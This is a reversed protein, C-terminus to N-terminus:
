AACDPAAPDSHQGADGMVEVLPRIPWVTLASGPTCNIVEVGRATLADALAPFHPLFRAKYIGDWSPTPHEHHWHRRGNVARMDFGLLLIRRAGRKAAIQIAQYGGNGGTMVGDPRDSWGAKGDNRLTRLHPLDAILSTNELTWVEGGFGKVAATHWIFWKKDCFWLADAWPARYCANNIAIVRARGRLMAVDSEALSPGGGIIAATEGDWDRPIATYAFSM